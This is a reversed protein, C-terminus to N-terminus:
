SQFVSLQQFSRIFFLNTHDRELGYSEIRPHQVMEQPKMAQAHFGWLCDVDVQKTLLNPPGFDFCSPEKLQILNLHYKTPEFNFIVSM